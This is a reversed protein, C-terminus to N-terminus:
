RWGHCLNLARTSPANSTRPAKASQAAHRVYRAFETWRRVATRKITSKQIWRAKANRAHMEFNHERCEFSRANRLTSRCCARYKPRFCKAENLNHGHINRAIHVCMVEDSPCPAASASRRRVLQMHRCNQIPMRACFPRDCRMHQVSSVSVRNARRAIGLNRACREFTRATKRSPEIRTLDATM